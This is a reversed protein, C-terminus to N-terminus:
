CPAKWKYGHRLSRSWKKVWHTEALRLLYSTISEAEATGVGIPTLKALRIPRNPCVETSVRPYLEIV